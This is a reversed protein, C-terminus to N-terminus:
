IKGDIETKTLTKQHWIEFRLQLVACLVHVGSSCLWVNGMEKVRDKWKGAKRQCKREKNKKM